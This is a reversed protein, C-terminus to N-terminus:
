DTYIFDRLVGFSAFRGGMFSFALVVGESILPAKLFSWSSVALANVIIFIVVVFLAILSLISFCKLPSLDDKEKKLWWENEDSKDLCPTAGDDHKFTNDSDIDKEM